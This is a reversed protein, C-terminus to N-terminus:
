AEVLGMMPRRHRAGTTCIQRCRGSMALEGIAGRTRLYAAHKGGAAGTFRACGLFGAYLLAALILLSRM